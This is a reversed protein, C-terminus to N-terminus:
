AVQRSQFIRSLNSFVAAILAVIIMSILNRRSNKLAYAFISVIMQRIKNGDLTEEGKILGGMLERFKPPDEPFLDKLTEDIDSFDFQDLIIGEMDSLDGTEDSGSTKDTGSAGESVESAYIKEAFGVPPHILLSGASIILGGLIVCFGFFRKRNKM